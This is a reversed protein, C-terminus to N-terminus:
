EWVAANSELPQQNFGQVTRVNDASARNADSIRGTM